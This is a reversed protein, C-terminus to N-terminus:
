QNNWDPYIEAKSEDLMRILRWKDGSKTIHFWGVFPRWAKSDSNLYYTQDKCIITDGYLTGYVTIIEM